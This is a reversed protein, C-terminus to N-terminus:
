RQPDNAIREQWPVAGRGNFYEKLFDRIRKGAQNDRNHAEPPPVGPPEVQEERWPAPVLNHNADEEDVEGHIQPLRIRMLNHLVVCCEIIDCVTEPRQEMVSMLVRWRKAMIGFANEVVRRGRSIRYNFIIEENPMHQKSLPKQLYSSLAFADDGLLFYPLNYPAEGDEEQGEQPVDCALPRPAPLGLSGNELHAKLASNNFIQADSHHGKGGTDVWLFKYDADVLAMLVISFCHKYVCWYDSGSHAPATIKVHKGDLAGVAHPVQWKREFEQSVELWEEPTSPMKIVEDKYAATIARCVIPVFKVVTSHGVRFNFSVNFYETGTALYRLTAAVKLGAELSKRLNNGPGMISDEVRAVIEDFLAPTMRLYDLFAEPDRERLVRMLNHYDGQTQREEETLWDKVRMRRERRARRRRIVLVEEEMRNLEDLQHLAELHIVLPVIRAPDM